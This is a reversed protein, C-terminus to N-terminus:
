DITYEVAVRLTDPTGNVGTITLMVPAHTAVACSTTGGCQGAGNAFATATAGGPVCALDSALLHAGSDSDMASESRRDLNIVVSTSAKVACYIRTIHINKGSDLVLVRGTDAAVPDFLTVIKEDTRNAAALNASSVGTAPAFNAAHHGDVQDANLNAVVATDTIGGLKPTTVEAPVSLTGAETFTFARSRNGTRLIWRQNAHDYQLDDWGAANNFKLATTTGTCGAAPCAVNLVYPPAANFTIGFTLPIPGFSLGHQFGAVGQVEIGRGAQVAGSNTVYLGVHQSNGASRLRPLISVHAGITQGAYGLPQEVADGVAFDAASAVTVGGLGAAVATVNSGKYIKYSGSTAGTWAVDSGTFQYDLTLQTNSDVSRIPVVLKLGATVDSDLAFYLNSKPGTGFTSAWATGSGTVVVPTGSINSATGASYVKAPTTIILPRAEGLTDARAASGLGITNGALSAVTGTAVADGQAAISSIGEIGEDSPATSSGWGTAAGSFMVTDGNSFNNVTAAVGIHQGSTRSAMTADIVAYNSKGAPSNVGGSFPEAYARFTSWTQPLNGPTTWRSRVTIDKVYNRGEEGFQNPGSLGRFDVIRVNDPVRSPAGPGLTSPIVVVCPSAGCDAVAADIRATANAGPFQDAFRLGNLSSAQLQQLDTKGGAVKLAYDNDGSGHDEIYIGYNAAGVGAQSQVRLGANETVTAGSQRSNTRAVLGALSASAGSLALASGAVGTVQGATGSGQYLGVGAIGTIIGPAAAVSMADGELGLPTAGDAHALGVSGIAWGQATDSEHTVHLAPGNHAPLHVFVGLPYSADLGNEWWDRFAASVATPDGIAIPGAFTKKGTASEDGSRHLADTDGGGGCDAPASVLRAGDDAVRVCRAPTWSSNGTGGRELSIVNSATATSALNPQYSDLSWAAGTPQACDYGSSADGGLVLQGTGSDRLTVAYCINAPTTLATDLVRAGAAIAGNTVEFCAPASVTQGGGGVFSIAHGASDVPRFCLRGRALKEGRANQVNAATVATWQAHASFCLLVVAVATSVIRNM